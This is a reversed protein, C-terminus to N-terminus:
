AREEKNVQIAVLKIRGPTSSVCLLYSIGNASENQTREMTQIYNQIIADSFAEVYPRSSIRIVANDKEKCLRVELTLDSNLTIHANVPTSLSLPINEGNCIISDVVEIVNQEIMQLGDQDQRKPHSLDLASVILVTTEVVRQAESHNDKPLITIKPKETERLTIRPVQPQTQEPRLVVPPHPVVSSNQNPNYGTSNPPAVISQHSVDSNKPRNLRRGFKEIINGLAQFITPSEEIIPSLRLLNITSGDPNRHVITGDQRREADGSVNNITIKPESFQALMEETVFLEGKCEEADPGCYVAWKKQNPNLVVAFSYKGTFYQRQQASDLGSFRPPMDDLHTHYWGLMLYGNDKYPVYEGLMKRWADQTITIITKTAQVLNPEFPIIAVVDGWVIANRRSTDKHYKGVLLGAKEVDRCKSKSSWAIAEFLRATAEVGMLLRINKSANFSAQAEIVKQNGEPAPYPKETMEINTNPQRIEIRPNDPVQLRGESINKFASLSQSVARRPLSSQLSPTTTKLAM